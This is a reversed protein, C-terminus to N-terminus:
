FFHKFIFQEGILIDKDKPWPTSETIVNVRGEVLCAIEPNPKNYLINPPMCGERLGIIAQLVFLM